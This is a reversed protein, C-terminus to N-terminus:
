RIKYVKLIIFVQKYSIKLLNGRLNFPTIKNSFFIKKFRKYKDLNYKTKM